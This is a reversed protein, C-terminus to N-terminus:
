VAVRQMAQGTAADFLHTRSRDITVGVTEGPKFMQRPPAKATLTVGGIDVTYITEDGLPERVLVKGRLVTDADHSLTVAEPRV